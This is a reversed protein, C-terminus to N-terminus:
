TADAARLVQLYDSLHDPDFKTGDFFGDPGLLLRGAVSGVATKAPLAGEVKANATPIDIGCAALAQRYLDPRYTDRATQITEPTITIEGWRAMQSLFWLAHSTWPFTAARAAYNLFGEVRLRPGIGTPLLGLLSPRILEPAQGLYHPRALLECLAEGNEPVDCWQCARHIARVLAALREPRDSAWNARAALVKEPGSRWIHSGTTAIVAHAEKVAVSGWPEGACFGDIQESELAVAMLPPPLVVLEVDHGPIMGGAALWYALEYRHASHPHVIGFVLKPRGSTRRQTVVASLAHLAIRPDFDATAGAEAMARWLPKSVTVTNGGFGLAMPAILKMPLAGIGLNAAIPMPALAHAIDLHAVALRDRITAWSTERSLTLEFGEQRAFGHEHAVILPAADLLPIFGARITATPM